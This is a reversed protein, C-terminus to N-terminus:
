SFANKILKNQNELFEKSSGSAPSPSEVRGVYNLPLNGPMKDHLNTFIFNWAGMNQPEEQVWSIKEANKYVSLISQLFERNLPYYQEIRVIATNLISNDSRYKVLDYYVKGSTILLNSIQDKDNVEDDIIEMFGGDTFDGIDSQAAPLRLLSKPTFLILPIDIRGLV